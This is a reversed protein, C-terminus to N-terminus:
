SRLDIVIYKEQGDKRTTYQNKSQSESNNQKRSQFTGGMLKGLVPRM